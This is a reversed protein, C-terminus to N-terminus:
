ILYDFIKSGGVGREGVKIKKAAPAPDDSGAVEAAPSAGDEERERQVFLLTAACM